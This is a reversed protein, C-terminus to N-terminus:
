IYVVFVCKPLSILSSKLSTKRQIPLPKVISDEELFGLSNPCGLATPRDDSPLDHIPEEEEGTSCLWWIYLNRVSLYGDFICIIFPFTDSLCIWLLCSFNRQISCGGVWLSLIKGWLVICVLVVFVNFSISPTRLPYVGDSISNLGFRRDSSSTTSTQM